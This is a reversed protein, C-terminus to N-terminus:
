LQKASKRRVPGNDLELAEHDTQMRSKHSKVSLSRNETSLSLSDKFSRTDATLLMHFVAVHIGTM